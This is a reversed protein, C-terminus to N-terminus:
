LNATSLKLLLKFSVTNGNIIKLTTQENRAISEMEKILGRVEKTGLSLESIRETREITISSRLLALLKQKASENQLAYLLPLPLTENKVRNRLEVTDQMDIFENRMTMLVSFTRGFHGMAEVEDPKGGGIIAGVRAFADSVSGKAWVIERYEIPDLNFNGKFSREKATACGIEIFAGEVLSRILQRTKPPYKEGATSLQILAKLLLIDGALLVTDASFKGFATAKGAKTKSKDIIDDHIDAAGTLLVLAASVENPSDRNGGVAECALSILAPHQKNPWCEEM